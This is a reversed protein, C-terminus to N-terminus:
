SARSLEWEALAKDADSIAIPALNARQDLWLVLAKRDFGGILGDWMPCGQAYMAPLRKNLTCVSMNLMEAADAKSIFRTKHQQPQNM